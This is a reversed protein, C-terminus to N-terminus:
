GTKPPPISKWVLWNPNSFLCQFISVEKAATSNGGRYRISYIFLYIFIQHYYCLNATDFQHNIIHSLNNSELIQQLNSPSLYRPKKKM